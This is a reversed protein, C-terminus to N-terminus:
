GVGERGDEVRRGGGETTAMSRWTGAERKFYTKMSKLKGLRVTKKCKKNIIERVERRREERRGGEKEKVLSAAVKWSRGGGGLGGGPRGGAGGGRNDEKRSLLARSLFPRRSAPVRISRTARNSFHVKDM